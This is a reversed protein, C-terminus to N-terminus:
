EPWDAHRGSWAEFERWQPQAARACFGAWARDLVMMKWNIVPGFDVHDAPLDPRDALDAATLWGDAHLREFSVLLPNGGFASLTQYPSDGYSTPGLPLM